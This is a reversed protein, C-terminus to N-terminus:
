DVQDKFPLKLNQPKLKKSELLIDGTILKQYARSLKGSSCIMIKIMVKLGM